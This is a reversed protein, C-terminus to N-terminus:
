EDFENESEDVGINSDSDYDSINETYIDIYQKGNNDYRLCGYEWTQPVDNKIYKVLHNNKVHYLYHDKGIYCANYRTNDLVFIVDPTFAFPLRSFDDKNKIGRISTSSLYKWVHYDKKIYLFNKNKQLNKTIHKNKNPNEKKISTESCREILKKIEIENKSSIDDIENFALDDYFEMKSKIKKTQECLELMVSKIDTDCAPNKAIILFNKYCESLYAINKAYKASM